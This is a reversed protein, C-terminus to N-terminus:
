AVISEGRFTGSLRGDALTVRVQVFAKQAATLVFPMTIAAPSTPATTGDGPISGAFRYPGKFFNISENQGRSGLILMAADDENAWGDAPTFTLSLADPATISAIAPDTFTPLAYVTPGPDVRLLGAQLRPINSRIYMGLGGVNRPDGLADPLPVQLAYQDWADRQVQTLTQVWATSLTVMFGRVAVQQPTAPNVPIARNRFYTGGRNHSATIGAISGSMDTGILPRFKM